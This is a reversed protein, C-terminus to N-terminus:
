EFGYKVKVDYKFEPFKYDKDLFYKEMLDAYNQLLFSYLSRADRSNKDPWLIDIVTQSDMMMNFKGSRRISEYKIM